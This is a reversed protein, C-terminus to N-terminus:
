NVPLEVLFRARVGKGESEAQTRGHHADVFQKALYLGLGTGRINVNGVGDARSCKKLLLPLTEKAIGIGNNLVSVTNSPVIELTVSPKGTEKPVVRVMCKKSHLTPRSGLPDIGEFLEGALITQSDSLIRIHWSIVNCNPCVSDLMWCRAFVSRKGNGNGKPDISPFRSVAVMWGGLTM